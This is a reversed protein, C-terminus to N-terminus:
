EKGEEEKKEPNYKDMVGSLYKKIDGLYNADIVKKAATLRYAERLKTYVSLAIQEDESLKESNIMLKGDEREEAAKQILESHVYGKLQEPLKFDLGLIFKNVGEALDELYSTEMVHELGSMIKNSIYTDDFAYSPKGAVGFSENEKILREYEDEKAKKIEETNFAYKANEAGNTGYKTVNSALNAGLTNQILTRELTSLTLNRRSERESIENSTM